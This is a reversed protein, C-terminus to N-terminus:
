KQSKAASYNEVEVQVRGRQQSVVKCAKGRKGVWTTYVGETRSGKDVIIEALIPTTPAPSLRFCVEAAMDNPNGRNLEYWSTISISNALLATSVLFLAITKM